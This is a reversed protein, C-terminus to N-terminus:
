RRQLESLQDKAEQYSFADPMMHDVYFQLYDKKNNQLAIMCQDTSGELSDSVITATGDALELISYFSIDSIVDTQSLNLVSQKYVDFSQCDKEVRSILKNFNFQKFINTEDLSKKCNTKLEDVHMSYWQVDKKLYDNLLKNEVLSHSLCREEDIGSLLSSREVWKKVNNLDNLKLYAYVALDAVEWNPLAEEFGTNTDYKKYFQDRLKKNDYLQVFEQINSQILDINNTQIASILKFKQEYFWLRELRIPVVLRVNEDFNAYHNSGYIHEYIKKFRENAKSIKQNVNISYNLNYEFYIMLSSLWSTGIALDESNQDFQKLFEQEHFDLEKSTSISLPQDDYLSELLTYALLDLEVLGQDKEGKRQKKEIQALIIKNGVLTEDCKSTLDLQPSDSVDLLESTYLFQENENNRKKMQFSIIDRYQYLQEPNKCNNKIAVIMENINKDLMQSQSALTHSCIFIICSVIFFKIKLM